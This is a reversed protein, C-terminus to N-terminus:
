FCVARGGVQQFAEGQLRRDDPLCDMEGVAVVLRQFSVVPLSGAVKHLSLSVLHEAAWGREAGDSDSM